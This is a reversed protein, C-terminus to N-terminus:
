LFRAINIVFLVFMLNVQLMEYAQLVPLLQSHFAHDWVEGRQCMQPDNRSHHLPPLLGKSVIQIYFETRFNMFYRYQDKQTSFVRKSKWFVTILVDVWDWSNLFTCFRFMFVLIQIEKFIKIISGIM